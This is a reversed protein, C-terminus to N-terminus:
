QCPATTLNTRCLSHTWCSTILDNLPSFLIGDDSLAMCVTMQIICLVTVVHKIFFSTSPIMVVGGGMKYLCLSSMCFYGFIHENMVCM